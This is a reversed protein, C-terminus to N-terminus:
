GKNFEIWEYTSGSKVCCMPTPNHNEDLLNVIVGSYKKSAPPLYYIGGDVYFKTINDCVFVDNVGEYDICMDYTAGTFNNYRIYTNTVSGGMINIFTGAKTGDANQSIVNHEIAVNDVKGNLTITEARTGGVNYGNIVNNIVFSNFLGYAEFFSGCNNIINGKVTVCATNGLSIACDYNGSSGIPSNFINDAIMKGKANKAMTANANVSHEAYIRGGEFVNNHIFYSGYLIRFIYLVGKFTNKSMSINVPSATANDVYADNVKISVNGEFINNVIHFNDNNEFIVMDGSDNNHFYCGEVTINKNYLEEKWTEFDIGLSPATGGNNFIRCNRITAGAVGGIVSIGNRRNGAIECGEIVVNKSPVGLSGGLTIGDGWFEYMACNKITINSSNSIDIANGWEGTTGTHTNKDGVFEIGEIHVNLTNTIKFISYKELNNTARTIVANEGKIKIPLSLAIDESVIYNGAPFFLTYNNSTAYEVSLKIANTDDTVGDGMAGFYKVSIQGVSEFKHVLDNFVEGEIIDIFDGNSHMDGILTTATAELNGKMYMEADSIRGDQQAFRETIIQAWTNKFTTISENVGETFTTYNTNMTQEFSNLETNLKQQYDALAQSVTTNHNDIRTNMAQVFETYSNTVSYSLNEFSEQYQTEFADIKEQVSDLIGSYNTEIDTKFLQIDSELTSEFANIENKVENLFTNWAEHMAGKFIVNDSTLSKSLDATEAKVREEFKLLRDITERMLRATHEVEETMTYRPKPNEPKCPHERDLFPKHMYKGVDFM